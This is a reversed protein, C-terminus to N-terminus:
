GGITTGMKGLLDKSQTPFLLYLVISIAVVIGLIALLVSRYTVTTWSVQFGPKNKQPVHTAQQPNPYRASVVVLLM